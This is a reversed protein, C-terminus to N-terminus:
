RMASDFLAVAALYGAVVLATSVLPVWALDRGSRWALVAAAGTIVVSAGIVAVFLMGAADAMARDCRTDCAGGAFVTHFFWLAVTAAVAVVQLAAVAVVAGAGSRRVRSAVDGATM